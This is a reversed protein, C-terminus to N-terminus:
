RSFCSGKVNKGQKLCVCKQGCMQDTYCYSKRCSACFATQTPVLTFGLVLLLLLKKM